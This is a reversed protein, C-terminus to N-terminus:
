TVAGAVAVMNQLSRSLSSNQVFRLDSALTSGTSCQCACQWHYVPLHASAQGSSTVQTLAAQLDLFRRAVDHVPTFMTAVPLKAAHIPMGMVKAVDSDVQCSTATLVQLTIM